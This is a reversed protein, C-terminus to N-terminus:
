LMVANQCSEVQILLGEQGVQGRTWGHCFAQARLLLPHPPRGLSLRERPGDHGSLVASPPM